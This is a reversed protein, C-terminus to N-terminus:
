AAQAARRRRAAFGVLGFGAILMAWTGPEPIVGSGFSLVGPGLIGDTTAVYFGFEDGMSLLISFSGSQVSGFPQDNSTLQTYVGNLVYGAPDFSSGDVDFTTYKWFFSYLFDFPAIETYQAIADDADNDPGTITAFYPAPGLAFTGDGGGINVFGVAGAPVAVFAAVAAATSLIFNRM